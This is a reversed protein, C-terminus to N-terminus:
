GGNESGEQIRVSDSLATRAEEQMWEAFDMVCSHKTFCAREIKNLVARLKIVEETREHAIMRFEHLALNGNSYAM